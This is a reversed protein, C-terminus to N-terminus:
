TRLLNHESYLLLMLLMPFNVVGGGSFAGATQM